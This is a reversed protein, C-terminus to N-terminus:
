ADNPKESLTRATARRIALLSGYFERLRDPWYEPGAKEAAVAAERVAELHHGVRKGKELDAHDFDSPILAERLAPQSPPSTFLPQDFRSAATVDQEAKQAPTLVQGMGNHWFAPASTQVQLTSLIRSEYDAQAAAQALEPTEFAGVTHQYDGDRREVVYGSERLTIYYKGAVSPASYRYVKSHEQGWVLPKVRVGTGEGGQATDPPLSAAAQLAAVALQKFDVHVGGINVIDGHRYGMATRVAKSAAEIQEESVPM